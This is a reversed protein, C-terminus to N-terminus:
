RQRGVEKCCISKRSSTEGPNARSSIKPAATAGNSRADARGEWATDWSSSSPAPPQHKRSFLRNGAGRAALGATQWTERQREKSKAYSAVLIQTPTHCTTGSLKDALRTLSASFDSPNPVTWLERCAPSTQCRQQIALPGETSSEWAGFSALACFLLESTCASHLRVACCCTRKDYCLSRTVDAVSSHTTLEQM